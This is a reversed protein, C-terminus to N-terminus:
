LREMLNEGACQPTEMRMESGQVILVERMEFSVALTTAAKVGRRWVREETVEM